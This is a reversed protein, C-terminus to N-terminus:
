RFEYFFGGIGGDYKFSRDIATLLCKFTSACYYEPYSDRLWYYGFLTFIYMLVIFLFYTYMIAKKPIWVSKVVNLLDPYRVIIDYLHFVFFFPNYVTGVIATLGYVIYYLVYFDSFLYYITKLLRM